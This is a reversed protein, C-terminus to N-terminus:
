DERVRTVRDGSVHVLHGIAEAFGGGSEAPEQHHNTDGVYGEADAVREASNGTVQSADEHAQHRDHDAARDHAPGSARGSVVALEPAEFPRRSPSSGLSTCQHILIQGTEGAFLQHLLNELKAPANAFVSVAGTLLEAPMVGTEPAEERLLLVRKGGHRIPRLEKPAANAVALREILL